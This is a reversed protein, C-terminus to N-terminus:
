KLQKVQVSQQGPLATNAENSTWVCRKIIVSSRASVLGVTGAVEEAQLYM